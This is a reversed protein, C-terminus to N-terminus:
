SARGPSKPPKRDQAKAQRGTLREGGPGAPHYGGEHKQVKPLIVRARPQDKAQGTTAPKDKDTMM